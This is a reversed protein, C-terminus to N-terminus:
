WRLRAASKFIWIIAATPGLMFRHRVRPSIALHLMPRHKIHCERISDYDNQRGATSPMWSSAPSGRRYQRLASGAFLHPKLEFGIFFGVPKHRRALRGADANYRAFAGPPVVGCRPRFIQNYPPLHPLEEPGVLDFPMSM